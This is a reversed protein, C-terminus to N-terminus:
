DPAEEPPRPRPKRIITPQGKPSLNLKRIQPEVDNIVELINNSIVSGTAEIGTVVPESRVTIVIESGDGPEEVPRSTRPASQEKLLEEMAEATGERGPSRTLVQGYMDSADEYRGLKRYIEALDWYARVLNPQIKVASELRRAAENLDPKPQHRYTLGVLYQAVADRQHREIHGKLFARAAATKQDNLFVHAKARVMLPSDRLDPDLRSLAEGSEDSRLFSEGKENHSERFALAQIRLAHLEPNKPFLGIIGDLENLAEDYSARTDKFMLDIALQAKEEVAPTRDPRKGSGETVLTPLSISTVPADEAYARSLRGNWEPIAVEFDAGSQPLHNELGSLSLYASGATATLLFALMFVAAISVPSAARETRPKFEPTKVPRTVAPSEASASTKFEEDLKSVGSDAADADFQSGWEFSEEREGFEAHSDDAPSGDLNMEEDVNFEPSSADANAEVPAPSESDAPLFPDYEASSVPKDPAKADISDAGGGSPEPEAPLSPDQEAAPKLSGVTDEESLAADAPPSTQSAPEPTFPDPTPAPEPDQEKQAAEGAHQIFEHPEGLMLDDRGDDTPKKEPGPAGTKPETFNFDEDFSEFAPESVTSPMAKKEKPLLHDEPKEPQGPGAESPEVRTKGPDPAPEEGGAGAGSIGPDSEFFRSEREKEKEYHHECLPRPPPGQLVHTSPLGCVECPPTKPKEVDPEPKPASKPEPKAVEPKRKVVFQHRCSPCNIKVGEPTIKSVEVKYQKKCNPCKIVM